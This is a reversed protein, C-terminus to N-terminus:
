LIYKKYWYQFVLLLWVLAAADNSNNGRLDRRLQEVAEVSFLGQARLYDPDLLESVMANLDNRLWQLLPVDFGKKPRNYLQPPLLHRFADQVIQKKGKANIKYSDPLSFAFDVIRSDLFPPRVELANAMSMLDTKTLMDGSLVMNVDAYLVSNLTHPAQDFVHLYEHQMTKYASIDLKPLLMEHAKEESMLSAWRWYRAGMSLSAGEAFRLSQRFFDGIATERSKPLLHLLPQFAPLLRAIMRHKRMKYEAAHKNYGGFLEDGGDGSLAVTVYHRTKKSLIYTPLASSDAFPEDLYDLVDIVSDLLDNNALSFVTHQTGYQRAVAEAYPTEDFFPEDKYGISFTALQNTHRAALATIVSSDIGGSLFCGLPVDAILNQQVADDMLSVLTRQAAEYTPPSPMSVAPHPLEYYRVQRVIGESSITAYCGAPLKFIETFISYPQPVYGLQLYTYLMNVNLTRPLPLALLAKMESAFVLKDCDRYMLLPKIGTHDRALFLEETQSDYIAFAFFGNLHQLVNAGWAIYAQLLVETDSETSFSYGQQQLQYRLTRYNLIEGNFVIVYRRSSDFFPQQAATTPDIIALRLQALAVQQHIYSGQSDPGRQQLAQMARPLLSLFERGAPTFAAIGVIGCM